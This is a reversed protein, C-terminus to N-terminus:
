RTMEVLVKPITRPLLPNAVAVGRRQLLEEIKQTTGIYDGDVLYALRSRARDFLVDV